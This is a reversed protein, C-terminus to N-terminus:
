QFTFNLFVGRSKLSSINAKIDTGLGEFENKLGYVGRISPTFKFYPFYFSAGFGIEALFNNKTLLFDYEGNGDGKNKEANFNYNYSMGTMIFGRVNNVRLTSFKLSIPLHFHTTPIQFEENEVTLKNTTTIIGPETIISIHKSLNLDALVGLQFGIGQSINVKDSAKLEYGKNHVGLYYGYRILTNDFNNLDTMIRKQAFGSHISYLILFITIIRLKM